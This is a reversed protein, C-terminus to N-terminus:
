EVLLYWEGNLDISPETENLAVVEFYQNEMMELIGDLGQDPLEKLTKILPENTLSEPDNIGLMGCLRRNNEPDASETGTPLPWRGARLAERNREAAALCAMEETEFQQRAAGGGDMYVSWWEDNFFWQQEVVLYIM